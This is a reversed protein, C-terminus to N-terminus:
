GGVRLDQRKKEGETLTLKFASSLIQSLFSTNSLDADEINKVIASRRANGRM